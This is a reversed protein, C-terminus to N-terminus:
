NNACEDGIHWRVDSANNLYWQETDSDANLEQWLQEWAQDSRMDTRYLIAGDEKEQDIRDEGERWICKERGIDICAQHQTFAGLFYMDTGHTTFKQKSVWQWQQANFGDPSYIQPFPLRGGGSSVDWINELTWNNNPVWDWEEETPCGECAGINILPITTRALYGEIWPYTVDYSNFNLEINNGGLIFLRSDYGHDEIYTDLNNIMQAWAEGHARTVNVGSNTTAIVIGRQEDDTSGNSYYADLYSQVGNQISDISAFPFLNYDLLMTGIEGTDSVDPEGFFLVMTGDIQGECGADIRGM